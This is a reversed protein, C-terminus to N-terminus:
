KKLKSGELNSPKQLACGLHALATLWNCTTTARWYRQDTDNLTIAHASQKTVLPTLPCYLTTGPDKENYLNFRTEGYSDM